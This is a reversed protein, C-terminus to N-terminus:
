SCIIIVEERNSQGVRREMVVGTNRMHKNMEMNRQLLSVVQEVWMYPVNRNLRGNM